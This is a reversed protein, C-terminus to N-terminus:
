SFDFQNNSLNTALALEAGAARTITNIVKLITNEMKKIKVETFILVFFPLITYVRPMCIM